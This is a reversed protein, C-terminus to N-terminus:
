FVERPLDTRLWKVQRVHRFGEPEQARYEYPGTVQGVAVQGPKTKLPMVVLDGTSIQERVRWLQGTWNAIVNAAVEPYAVNLAQRVGERTGCGSLDGLGEWGVIILGEGLAAKEREGKEGGRVLWAAPESGPRTSETM